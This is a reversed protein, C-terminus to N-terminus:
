DRGRPRRDGVVRGGPVLVEEAGEVSSVEWTGEFRHALEVRFMQAEIEGAVDMEVLAVPAGVLLGLWRARDRWEGAVYLPWKCGGVLKGIPRRARVVCGNDRP